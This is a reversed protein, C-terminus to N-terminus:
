ALLYWLPLGTMVVITASVVTVSLWGSRWRGLGKDRGALLMLLLIPPAALGNLIASYFLAEIPGLGTLNLVVGVAMAAIIVGYFGPAQRADQGIGGGL